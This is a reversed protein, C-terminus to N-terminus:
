KRDSSDPISAPLGALPESSLLNSSRRRAPDFMAQTSRVNRPEFVAIQDAPQAGMGEEVRMFRVSDYGEARAKGLEAGFIRHNYTMYDGSEIPSVYDPNAAQRRAFEEGYERALYDIDIVKQKGSRECAATTYPTATQQAGGPL